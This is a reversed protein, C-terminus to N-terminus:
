VIVIILQTKGTVGGLSSITVPPRVSPNRGLLEQMEEFFPWSMRARGTANNNDVITKYRFSLFSLLYKAEAVTVINAYRQKLNRFKRECRDVPVEVGFEALGSQIKKWVDRKKKTSSKFLHEYKKYTDILLLTQEKSWITTEEAVLVLVITVHCFIVVCPFEGDIDDATEESTVSPTSPPSPRTLEELAAAPAPPLATLTSSVPQAAPAPTATSTSSAPQAAPARPPTTSTSSAPQASPARRPATAPPDPPSTAFTTFLRNDPLLNGDITIGDEVVRELSYNECPLGHKKSMLVALQQLLDGQQDGTFHLLFASFATVNSYCNARAARVLTVIIACLWVSIILEDTQILVM